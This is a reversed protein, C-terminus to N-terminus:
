FFPPMGHALCHFFDLRSALTLIHKSRRRAHQFVANKRQLIDCPIGTQRKSLDLFKLRRHRLFPPAVSVMHLQRRCSCNKTVDLQVAKARGDVVEAAADSGVGGAKDRGSDMSEARIHHLRVPM